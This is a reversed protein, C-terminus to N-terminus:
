IFLFVWLGLPEWHQSPVEEDRDATPEVWPPPPSCCPIGSTSRNPQPSQFIVAAINKHRLARLMQVTNSASTEADVADTNFLATQESCADM